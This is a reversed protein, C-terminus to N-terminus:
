RLPTRAIRSLAPLLKIINSRDTGTLLEFEQRLQAFVEADPTIASDGINSYKNWFAQGQPSLQSTLREIAAGEREAASDKIDEILSYDTSELEQQTRASPNAVQAAADVQSIIGTQGGGMGQLFADEQAQAAAFPAAAQTESHLKRISDRLGKRLKSNTKVMQRLQEVSDPQLDGKEAELSQNRRQQVVFDAIRDLTGELDVEEGSDMQSIAKEVLNEKMLFDNTGIGILDALPLGAVLEDGVAMDPQSKKKYDVGVSRYFDKRALEVNDWAKSIAADLDAYDYGGAAGELAAAVADTGTGTTMPKWRHGLLTKYSAYANDYSAKYAKQASDLQAARSAALRDERKQEVGLMVGGILMGGEKISKGGVEAAKSWNLAM